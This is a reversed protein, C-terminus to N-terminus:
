ISTTSRKLKKEKKRLCEVRRLVIVSFNILQYVIGWLTNEGKEVIAFSYFVHLLDVPILRSSQRTRKLSEPVRKAVLLNPQFEFFRFTNTRYYLKGFGQKDDAPM